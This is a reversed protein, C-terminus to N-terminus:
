GKQYDAESVTTDPNEAAYQESVYKGTTADRYSKGSHEIPPSFGAADAEAKSLKVAHEGLPEFSKEFAKPTYVKFGTGAYLVWDGVFAKTQRETLPRHVRVKVYKEEATQETTRTEGMCWAAVADLNEATVQIADVFFPRRAFKEPHLETM